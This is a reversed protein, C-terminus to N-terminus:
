NNAPVLRKMRPNWVLKHVKIDETMASEIQTKLANLDEKSLGEFKSSANQTSITISFDTDSKSITIEM